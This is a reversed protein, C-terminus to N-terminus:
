KTLLSKSSQQHAHIDEISGVKREEGQELLQNMQMHLDQTKIREERLQRKLDELTEEDEAVRSKTQEYIVLTEELMHQLKLLTEELANSVESEKATSKSAVTTNEYLQSTIDTEDEEDSTDEGDSSEMTAVSEDDAEADDMNRRRFMCKSEGLSSELLTAIRSSHFGTGNISRLAKVSALVMHESYELFDDLVGVM